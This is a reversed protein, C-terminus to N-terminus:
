YNQQQQQKYYQSSMHKDVKAKFSNLSPAEVAKAPLNNWITVIRNTLFNHRQKCKKYVEREIKQSHPRKSKLQKPEKALKIDDYGNKIKFYQILDGRIRRDKITTINLAEM